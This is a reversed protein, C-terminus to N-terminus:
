INYYQKIKSRIQGKDFQEPCYMGIDFAFVIVAATAICEENQLDELKTLDYSNFQEIVEVMNVETEGLVNLNIQNAAVMEFGKVFRFCFAYRSVSRMIGYFALLILNFRGLLIKYLHSSGVIIEQSPFLGGSIERTYFVTIPVARIVGNFYLPICIKEVLKIFPQM